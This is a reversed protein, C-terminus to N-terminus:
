ALAEGLKDGLFRLGAANSSKILVTDNQRVQESLYALASDHDTFYHAEQEDWVGENISSIYM